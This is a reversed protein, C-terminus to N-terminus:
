KLEFSIKQNRSCSINSNISILHRITNNSNISIFHRITRQKRWAYGIYKIGTHIVYSYTIVFFNPKALNKWTRARFLQINPSATKFSFTRECTHTNITIKFAHGAYSDRPWCLFLSMVIFVNLRIFLRAENVLM